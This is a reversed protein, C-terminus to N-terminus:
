LGGLGKTALIPRLRPTGMSSAEPRRFDRLFSSSPRNSRAFLWAMLPETFSKEENSSSSDDIM